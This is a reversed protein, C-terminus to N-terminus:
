NVQNFLDDIMLNIEDMSYIPEGSLYGAYSELVMRQAILEQQKKLFVDKSMVVLEVRNECKLYIPGNTERCREYVDDYNTHIKEFEITM